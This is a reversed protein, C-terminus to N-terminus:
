FNLLTECLFNVEVHEGSSKFPPRKTPPLLFFKYLRLNALSNPVRTPVTVHNSGDSFVSAAFHAIALLLKQVAFNEARSRHRSCNDIIASHHLEFLLNTVGRNVKLLIASENRRQSVSLSDKCRSRAECTRKHQVFSTVCASGSVRM